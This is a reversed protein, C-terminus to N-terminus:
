ETAEFLQAQQPRLDSRAKARRECEHCRPRDDLLGASCRDCRRVVRRGDVEISELRHGSVAAVHAAWRGAVAAVDDASGYRAARAISREAAEMREDLFRELRPAIM